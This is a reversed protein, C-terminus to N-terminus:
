STIKTTMLGESVALLGLKVRVSDQKNIVDILQEKTIKGTEVLYNGLMYEVM